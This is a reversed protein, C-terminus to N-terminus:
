WGSTPARDMPAGQSVATPPPPLPRGDPSWAVGNSPTVVWPAFGGIPGGHRQQYAAAVCALYVEPAMDPPAEGQLRAVVANALRTGLVGRADTSIEGVRLLFSRVVGYQVPTLGGVDLRGVYAELGAPPHFAVARAPLTGVRERIVMTGAALDGVRQDRQTGLVAASAVAGLTLWLEVLGIIGRTAAHRFREPSGDVTVVRLGLALKGVTRGRALSEMGVPYGLVVAFLVLFQGIQGLDPAFTVALGVGIGIIWLLVFMIIVDIVFALARSALGATEFELVVAEPTVIGRAPAEM